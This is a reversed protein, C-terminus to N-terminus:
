IEERTKKIKEDLTFRVISKENDTCVIVGKMDTDDVRELAVIGTQRVIGGDHWRYQGRYIGDKDKGVTTVERETGFTGGTWYFTLLTKPDGEKKWEPNPWKILRYRLTTIVGSLHDNKRSGVQHRRKFTHGFEEGFPKILEGSLDMPCWPHPALHEDKRGANAAEHRRVIAAYREQCWENLESCAEQIPAQFVILLIAVCLMTFIAGTVKKAVILREGM